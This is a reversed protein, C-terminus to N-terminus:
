DVCFPQCCQIECKMNTCKGQEVFSYTPNVTLGLDAGPCLEMEDCNECSGLHISDKDADPPVCHFLCNPNIPPIHQDDLDRKVIPDTNYRDSCACKKGLGGGCENEIMFYGDPCSTVEDCVLPVYDDCIPGSPPKSPNGPLNVDQYYQWDSPHWPTCCHSDSLSCDITSYGCGEPTCGRKKMIHTRDCPVGHDDVTVGDGCNTYDWATCDCGPIDIPEDTHTLPDYYSDEVDTAYGKFLANIHRVLVPGGMYIGAAILLIVIIIELTQQAKRMKLLKFPM